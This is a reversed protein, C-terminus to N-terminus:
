LQRIQNADWQRSMSEDFIGPRSGTKSMRMRGYHFGLLGFELRRLILPDIQALLDVLLQFEKM